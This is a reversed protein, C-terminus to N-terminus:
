CTAAVSISSTVPISSAVQNNNFANWGGDLDVDGAVLGYNEVTEDEEGGLIAHFSKSTVTGKKGVEILNDDGGKVVVGYYGAGGSVKGKKVAM